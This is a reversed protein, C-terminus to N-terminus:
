PRRANASSCPIMTGTSEPYKADYGTEFHCEFDRFRRWADQALDLNRRGLPDLKARM